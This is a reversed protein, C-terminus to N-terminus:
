YVTITQTNNTSQTLTIFPADTKDNNNIIGDENTDQYKVGGVTGPPNQAPSNNIDAQSQFIGIPVLGSYYNKATGKTVVVYYKSLYDVTFKAQNNQDTIQTYKPTNNNVATMDAYLNVTASGAAAGTRGDAVTIQVTTSKAPAVDAKKSCAEFTTLAIFAILIGTLNKKM